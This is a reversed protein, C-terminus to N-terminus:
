KGGIRFEFHYELNLNHLLSTVVSVAKSEM